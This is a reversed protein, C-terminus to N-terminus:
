EGEKYAKCKKNNCHLMGSEFLFPRDKKIRRIRKVENYLLRANEFGRQALDESIQLRNKYKIEDKFLGHVIKDREMIWTKLEGKPSFFTLPMKTKAFFSENDNRFKRLCDIRTIIKIDRRCQCDKGCPFGIVGCFAELRSEIMAYEILIAEFYFGNQIANRCRDFSDKHMDVMAKESETM